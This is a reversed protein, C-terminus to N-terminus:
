SVAELSNIADKMAIELKDIDAFLNGPDVFFPDKDNKKEVQFRQFIKMMVDRRKLAELAQEGLRKKAVMLILSAIGSALATSVSSGSIERNQSRIYPPSTVTMNEGLLILNPPYAVRSLDLSSAASVSITNPYDAPFSKQAASADSKACFVLTPNTPGAIDKLITELETSSSPFSWSLNIIDVRAELAM